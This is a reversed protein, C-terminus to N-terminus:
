RSDALTVGAFETRFEAETTAASSRVFICDRRKKREEFENMETFIQERFVPSSTGSPASQSLPSINSSSSVDGQRLGHSTMSLRVQLTLNAVAEALSKIM